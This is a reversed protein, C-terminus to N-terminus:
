QLRVSVQDTQGNADIVSIATFGLGDPPLGFERRAIRGSVPAGNVLYTFPPAGGTVKVVLWPRGEHNTAGTDIAAGDPPFAIQLTQSRLATTTKPVDQRIHRLPPPLQANTAVLAEPPRPPLGPETGIRAFADFLIPAASRRGILGPVAGNDARGIWIGITHRRDFGVAWADRYGYSTGTKYAIRGPAGNEPPPAGILIDAVYWASLRQVLPRAEGMPAPVERLPIAAGGRALGAYLMTLDRLTIGLGGLGVALGPATADPTAIEAGAERLRALFRQAGLAALLDVAPLNLSMQLATRASAMGQFTLDFNDPAYLGFRHPRDELMTEPHAIGNDFALAYIFSKLASGPSRLAETLDIGGKREASFYDAGGVSARVLGTEHEVVVIAVSLAPGLAEARERALRELNQQWDRDLTTAIRREGPAAVVLAEARHAALHPFPRRGVPVAEEFARALETEPLHNFARMRAIVRARAETARTAFRDPRRTEPAQPIAVLLAAEAMSLRAPEKGFYALSAARVGELNGGMPALTLYLDLIGEKGVRRELDMARAMQRLKAGLSRGERPEALRAVQMSLTSGGSVIRGHRLVQWGARLLARPDVGAHARFRRDEYAILMDLYRPDVERASVPMRWRGDAMVFPRLLKGNRDVVITSREALASLDLPPLSRAYIQLAALPALGLVALSVAALGLRRILRKRM